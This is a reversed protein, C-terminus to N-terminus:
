DKIWVGEQAMRYEFVSGREPFAENLRKRKTRPKGTPDEESGYGGGGPTYLCFTDQLPSISLRHVSEASM